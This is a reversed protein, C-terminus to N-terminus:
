YRCTSFYASMYGLQKRLTLIEELDASFQFLKDNFTIVDIIPESKIEDLFQKAKRCVRYRGFDWGIVVKAPIISVDGDRQCEDCYYKKTYACM